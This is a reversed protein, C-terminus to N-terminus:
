VLVNVGVQHCDWEDEKTKRIRAGQDPNIAAFNVSWVYSM